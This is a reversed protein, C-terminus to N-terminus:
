RVPVNQAKLARYYEIGQKFPVRRDEQGLMLLLPTKVQPHPSGPHAPSRARSLSPLPLAVYRLPTSSPHSTWCRLGCASTQYATVETPSALRWWAGALSQAAAAAPARPGPHSEPPIPYLPSPCPGTPCVWWDPVDTSGMMSAINIVPNRAVCAGYMEPYQGILHCSLFGGHSGGMLAVRGADFHEEQLM